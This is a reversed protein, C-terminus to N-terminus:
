MLFSFQILVTLFGSYSKFVRVKYTFHYHLAHYGGIIGGLSGLSDIEM